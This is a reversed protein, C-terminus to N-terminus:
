VNSDTNATRKAARLVAVKETRADAERSYIQTTEVNSHGAAQRAADLDGGTVDLTETIGGARSDRNQFNKPVGVDNAIQRWTSRYESEAFFPRGTTICKIMPGIRQDLPIAALEEMIMPYLTLRWRRIKGAEPDTIGDRGRISKSLRHTLVLDPSVERWDIGHLWKKGRYTVASLGPESVPIWEGVVDKPRLLLEFQVAQALAIDPRGVEHARKRIACAQEASIAVRRARGNQFQMQSLVAALRTCEKDELITTGFGIIIRVMTIRAHARPIHKSGDDNKSWTAFWRLFDRGTLNVLLRKGVTAEIQGLLALYHKRSRYRLTHFNSDLDTQYTRSLGTVTGDFADAVLAPDSGGNARAKWQLMESQLRTCEEVIFEQESANPIGPHPLDAPPWLRVTETPYGRKVLRTDALWYAVPGKARPRWGLGVAGDIKPMPTM